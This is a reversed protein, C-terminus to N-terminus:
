AAAYRSLMSVYSDVMVRWYAHAKSARWEESNACHEFHEALLAPLWVSSGPIVMVLSAIVLVDTSRDNAYPLGNLWNFLDAPTACRGIHVDWPSAADEAVLRMGSPDIKHLSALVKDRTHRIKEVTIYDVKGSKSIGMQQSEKYGVQQDPMHLDDGADDPEYEVDVADGHSGLADDIDIGHSRPRDHDSAHLMVSFTMLANGDYMLPRVSDGENWESLHKLATDRVTEGTRHAPRASSKSYDFLSSPANDMGHVGSAHLAAVHRDSDVSGRANMQAIKEDFDHMLTAHSM